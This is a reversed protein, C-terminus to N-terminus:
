AAERQLFDNWDSKEGEDHHNPFKAFVSEFRRGAGRVQEARLRYALSYAAMQGTYSSDADGFVVVRKCTAPPKWKTLAGASLAYSARAAYRFPGPGESM